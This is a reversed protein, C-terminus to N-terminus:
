KKKNFYGEDWILAGQGEIKLEGSEHKPIPIKLNLDINKDEGYYCLSVQKGDENIYEDIVYSIPKFNRM